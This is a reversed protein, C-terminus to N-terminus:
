KVFRAKILYILHRLGDRWPRLHPVRGEIDKHLSIPVETINFGHKVFEVYLESAFEMGGTKFEIADLCEKKMLRMGCQSDSIKTGYLFNLVFTLFPNGFYRNLFPMAGYEVNGKLRTGTIMQTNSTVLNWFLPIELFDYTNDADGMIVYKGEASEFGCRLANGYGKEVCHVVKAGNQEAIEVTRDTSGNDSVIVEGSINLEKFSAFCKQICVAITKEENLCPIVISLDKMNKYDIGKGLYCM